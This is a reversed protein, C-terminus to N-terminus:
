FGRMYPLISKFLYVLVVSRTVTLVFFHTIYAKYMLQVWPDLSIKIQYKLVLM